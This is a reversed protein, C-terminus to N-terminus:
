RPLRDIAPRMCEVVCAGVLGVIAGIAILWADRARDADEDHWTVVTMSRGLTLEAGQDGITPPKGDILFKLKSNLSRVDFIIDPSDDAARIFIARDTYSTHFVHYNLECTLGVLTGGEGLKSPNFSRADINMPTPLPDFPFPDVTPASSVKVTLGRDKSYSDIDCAEKNSIHSAAVPSSRIEGYIVPVAAYVVLKDRNASLSVIWRRDQVSQNLRFVATDGSTPLPIILPRNVYEFASFGILSLAVSALAWAVFQRFIKKKIRLAVGRFWPILIKLARRAGFAAGWDGARLKSLLAKM